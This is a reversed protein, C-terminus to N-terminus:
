SVPWLEGHDDLFVLLPVVPHVLTLADTRRNVRYPQSSWRFFELVGFAMGPKIEIFIRCGKIVIGFLPKNFSGVVAAHSRRIAVELLVIRSASVCPPFEPREGKWSMGPISVTTSRCFGPISSFIPCARTSRMPRSSTAQLRAAVLM